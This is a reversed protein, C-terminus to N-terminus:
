LDLLYASVIQTRKLVPHSTLYHLATQADIKLGPHHNFDLAMNELM